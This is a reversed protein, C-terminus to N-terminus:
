KFRDKGIPFAMPIAFKITNASRDVDKSEMGGGFTIANLVNIGGGGKSNQSNQAEILLEFDIFQIMRSDDQGLHTFGSAHEHSRALSTYNIPNVCFDLEKEQLQAKRIGEAIGILTSAIFDSLEM